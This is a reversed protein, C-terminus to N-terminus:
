KNFFRRLQLQNDLITELNDYTIEGKKIQNKLPLTANDILLLMYRSLTMNARKAQIMLLAKRESDIRIKLISDKKKDM